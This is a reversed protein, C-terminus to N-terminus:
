TGRSTCSTCVRRPGARARSIGPWLWPGECPSEISKMGYQDRPGSGAASASAQQAAYPTGKRSGKFALRDPPPGRYGRAGDPGCITIITNNFTPRSIPWATAPGRAEEGSRRSSKRASRLKKAPAQTTADQQQPEKQWTLVRAEIEIETKVIDPPSILPRRPSSEPGRSKKKAAVAGKGRVRARGRMPTRAAPWAGAPKRRHRMGRYCQIEILRRINMQVERASIARSAAGRIRDAQRLSNIEEETLDKVKMPTIWMRRRAFRRERAATRHRLDVDPRGLHTKQVPLDVGAIRAM